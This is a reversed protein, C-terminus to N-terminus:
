CWRKDCIFRTMDVVKVPKAEFRKAAIAQPDPAMAERRAGQLPSGRAQGCLDRARRADTGGRAQPTDRIVIINEVSKPLAKWAGLYGAVADLDRDRRGGAIASVILTKVEPHRKFWQVVRRNWVQCDTRAPEPLGLHVLTSFSCGTHTLSHGQWGKTQAAFALATRWHAAHSDGVLAVQRSAGARVGFGCVHLDGPEEDRGCPFNPRDHAEAPTPVVTLRLKPNRCTREPARAAAGFCVPNAAIVAQSRQTDAEIQRELRTGGQATAAMVAATALLALAFTWRARRRTLFGRRVPEEILGRSIAALAITLILLVGRAAGASVAYPALVLLPWHWLYIGYSIDGAFQVPALEFTRRPSWRKPLAGAWMVAVAGLVPLLAATGPFPTTPGYFVAAAVIALLGAWCVVTRTVAGARRAGVVALLGGLGFEWARTPTVFYATAADSSTMSISVAFSLATVGALTVAIARRHVMAAAFILLPWVLYFQEEAALSWYHQVPSRGDSAAFYDVATQALQWNEGYFASWRIETLFRQWHVTPM